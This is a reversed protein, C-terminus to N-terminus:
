NTGSSAPAQQWQGKEKGQNCRSFIAWALCFAFVFVWASAFALHAGLSGNGAGGANPLDGPQVGDFGGEPLQPPTQVDNQIDNQIGSQGGSDPLTIEGIEEGDGGGSNGNDDPRGMMQGGGGFGGQMGGAEGNGGPIGGKSRGIIGYGHLITLAVMGLAVLMVGFLILNKVTRKM